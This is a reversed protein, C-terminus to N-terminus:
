KKVKLLKKIKAQNQYIPDLTLNTLYVIYTSNPDRHCQVKAKKGKKTLEFGIIHGKEQQHFTFTVIDGKKFKSSM